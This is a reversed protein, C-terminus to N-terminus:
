ITPKSELPHIPRLSVLNVTAGPCVHLADMISAPLALESDTDAFADSPIESLCCRFDLSSNSLLCPVSPSNNVFRATSVCRRVQFGRPIRLEDLQGEFMPGADFIDVADTRRFGEKELIAVAAQTDRHVAGIKEQVSAPLLPLYIPYNPMLDKIFEKNGVGSLFDAEDFERDFFHRGVQDWFPSRGQEDVWGRFEAIVRTRFRGPFRAMFMLRSLSLFRGIGSQRQAPHLYLSGLESPGDHHAELHLVDIERHIGLPAHSFTEKHIRYTFFPEYGGIRALIAATGYVKRTTPEELVFLYQEAGPEAVEPYFSQMSRHIRRELVSREKPMSTLSSELTNLLEILSQLDTPHAPRIVLSANM